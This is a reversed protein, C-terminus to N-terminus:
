FIEFFGENKYPLFTTIEPSMQGFHGLKQDFILKKEVGDFYEGLRNKQYGM